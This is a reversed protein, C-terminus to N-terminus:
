EMELVIVSNPAAQEQSIVAQRCAECNAVTVSVLKSYVRGLWRDISQMWWGLNRRTRVIHAVGALKAVPVAFYTSDPFM